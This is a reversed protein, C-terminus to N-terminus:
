DTAVPGVACLEDDAVGAIRWLHVMALSGLGAGVTVFRRRLIRRGTRRIDHEGVVSPLDLIEPSTATM